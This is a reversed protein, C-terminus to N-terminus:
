YLVLNELKKLGGNLVNLDAPGKIGKVKGRHYYQWILWEKNYFTNPSGVLSRLWFENNLNLLSPYRKIFERTTYILPKTGFHKELEASAYSIIKFPKESIKAGDCEKLSEVDLAPALTGPIKPITNIINQIQEEKSTCFNWFHYGGVFLGTELAQNFNEKFRPDTFDGGETAKIYVFKYKESNIKEWEIEGQHHSVDLGYNKFLSKSPYNFRIKNNQAWYFVGFILVCTATILLIFYKV